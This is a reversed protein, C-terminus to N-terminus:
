DRPDPADPGRLTIRGNFRRSRGAAGDTPLSTDLELPDTPAAAQAGIRKQEEVQDRAEKRAPGFLEEVISVSTGGWRRFVGRGGFRLVGRGSPVEAADDV